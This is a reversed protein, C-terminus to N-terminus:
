SLRRVKRFGMKVTPDYLPVANAAGSEAFARRQPFLKKCFKLPSARETMESQEIGARGFPSGLDLARQQLKLHLSFTGPLARPEGKPLAPAPAGSLAIFPSAF